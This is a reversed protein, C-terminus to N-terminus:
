KGLVVSVPNVPSIQINGGVPKDEALSIATPLNEIEQTVGDIAFPNTLSTYDYNSPTEKIEQVHMLNPAYNNLALVYTRDGADTQMDKQPTSLIYSKYVGELKGNEHVSAAFWGKTKQQANKLEALLQNSPSTPLLTISLTKSEITEYYISYNVDVGQEQKLVTEANISSSVVGVLPIGAILINNTSSDYLNTQRKIFSNLGYKDLLSNAKDSLEDLVGM